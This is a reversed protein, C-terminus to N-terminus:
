YSFSQWKVLTLRGKGNRSAMKDYSISKNFTATTVHGGSLTAFDCADFHFRSAMKFIQNQDDM